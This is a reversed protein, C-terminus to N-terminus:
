PKGVRWLVSNCIWRRHKTTASQWNCCSLDVPEHDYDRLYLHKIVFLAEYGIVTERYQCYYTYYTVFKTL